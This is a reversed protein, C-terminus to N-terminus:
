FAVKFSMNLSRRGWNNTNQGFSPSSMNLNPVGYEDQNFINFADVRFVLRTPGAPFTKLLTLNTNWFHASREANRKGNGNGLSNALPLNNTGLPAIYYGNNAFGQHGSDWVFTGIPEHEASRAPTATAM